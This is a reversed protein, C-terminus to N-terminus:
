VLYFTILDENPEYMIKQPDEKWRGGIEKYRVFGSNQLSNTYCVRCKRVVKIEKAM